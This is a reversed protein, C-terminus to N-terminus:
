NRGVEILQSDDFISAPSIVKENLPITKGYREKLKERVVENDLDFDKLKQLKGIEINAGRKYIKWILESCYIRQDDWGFYIDYKKGRLKEGEKQMSVLVKPSLISQANKLRKIVYHHNEGRAIWEKLPTLKVPQVAEFVFYENGKQYIIGCHSYQSQTALQIAKSQASLSIQFIIDGNKYAKTSSDCSGLTFFLTSCLSYIAKM